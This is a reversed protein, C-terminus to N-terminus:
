LATWDGSLDCVVEGGPLTFTRKEATAEPSAAPALLLGAIVVSPLLIAQMTRIPKM